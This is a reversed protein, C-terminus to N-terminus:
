QEYRAFVRADLGQVAALAGILQLHTAEM